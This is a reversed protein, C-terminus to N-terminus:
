FPAQAKADLSKPIIAALTADTTLLLADSAHIYFRIDALIRIVVVAGSNILPM